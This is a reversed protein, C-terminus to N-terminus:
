ETRPLSHGLDIAEKSNVTVWEHCSRCTAKWYEQALLLAGERGKMHHVDHTKKTCIGPICIQCHPNEEKFKKAEKNYQSEEKSRRPSRSRLPTKSVTPKHKKSKRASWCRQCFRKREGEESVNKWIHRLEGCGDCLKQKSKM